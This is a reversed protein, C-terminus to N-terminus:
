DEKIMRTAWSGVFEKLEELNEAIKYETGTYILFHTQGKLTTVSKIDCETDM